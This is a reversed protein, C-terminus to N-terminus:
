AFVLKRYHESDELIGGSRAYFDNDLEFCGGKTQMWKSGAAPHYSQMDAWHKYNQHGNTEVVGIKMGPLPALRCAFTKNWDVQIPGVTLDACFMPVKADHAVKAIKLTMSLTKAIPKLAIAGYGLSIREEVDHDCHASEDAAIRVGLGSVNKKYEEPFPEEIIAIQDFAGIKKTHELFRQLREISDYRGNADFYYPIKGNQTHPTERNGIAKHIAEVRQMDWQLMKERDGDKDPDSGIKVKLFFYGDNVAQVIEPMPIGYAMLPIAAVKTHRHAIAARYAAPILADFDKIGKERAYLIWAAADVGVLANLAFTLRLDKKGTIKKGYEHTPELLKDLLDMPTEFTMGQAQRLAFDTMGFMLCNGASESWRAFVDADSWLVSQTNLAATCKGSTSKLGAVTQWIESVYGGKFGFPRILPEREFNSSVAAIQISM